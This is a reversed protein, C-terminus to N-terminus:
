AGVENMRIAAFPLLLLKIILTQLFLRGAGTAVRRPITLGVELWIFATPSQNRLGLIVSPWDPGRNCGNVARSHCSKLLKSRFRGSRFNSLQPAGAIVGCRAGLV